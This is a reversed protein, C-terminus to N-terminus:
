LLLLLHFVTNQHAKVLILSGPLVGFRIELTPQHEHYQHKNKICCAGIFKIRKKMNSFIFFMHLTIMKLISGTYDPHGYPILCLEDLYM